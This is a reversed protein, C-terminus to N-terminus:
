DLLLEEESSKKRKSELPAMLSASSRSSLCFLVGGLGFPLLPLLESSLPPVDASSRGRSAREAGFGRGAWRNDADVVSGLVV